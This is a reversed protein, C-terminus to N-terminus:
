AGTAVNDSSLTFYFAAGKGPEGEAWIRGGHRRIIREVTALGIGFGKCAEHGSLRQFTIFLKKANVVDFGSGNDRVFYIPMGDIDTVGFEIVVDERTSTYKLVIGLLNDLALRVLNPDGDVSIGDAILFTVPREPDALQLEKAVAQAIQSIDIKERCLEVHALNSFNLLTDILQNMQLTGDYAERLFGKCQEDLKESCLERLVQCYGNINTLPRRLDHAATYNFADFERNAAELEAALKRLEAKLREIEKEARKRDTIDMTYIRVTQIQPALFIIEKFFYGEIEIEQIYQQTKKDKLDQLIASIDQPIFPNDGNNHGAKDLIQKAAPNYFTVKGDIDMELIPNPNILPFSALRQVEAEALKRETIDMVIGHMRVPNDQDDYFSRGKSMVWRVQGDPMVVRMEVFYGTKERLAKQVAEDICQRDEEHIANLFAEYTMAYDPPYGFFEKCRESWTLENNVLDWHWLGIDAATSAYRLKEECSKFEEETRKRETIDRTVNSFGFLNGNEDRLATIMVYAWFRSGDKRVLWGEDETKGKAAATKLEGAPKSESRDEETYFCSIHKGIIEEAQYGQLQEAGSNWSHVNGHADLMFVAYDKVGEVLAHSVKKSEQLSSEYQKRLTIDSVFALILIGIITEIFSLSIELPFERGDQRRGAIDLLRGMPRIRPEEFFQVLHEEHVKRFREPILVSHPKGILDKKPYGFMQEAKTNVLLITESKDIIIVGEALSELFTRITIDGQFLGSAFAIQRQIIFEKELHVDKPKSDPTSM